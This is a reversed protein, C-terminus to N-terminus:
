KKVVINEKLVPPNYTNIFSQPKTIAQFSHNTNHQNYSFPKSIIFRNNYCDECLDYNLCQNCKYRVGEINSTLCSDCKVGFHVPKPVYTNVPYSIEQFQHYPHVFNKKDYCNQCLDYDKCNLCKFRSGVIPSMKCENCVINSHIIKPKILPKVLPELVIPEKPEVIKPELQVPVKPEEKVPAKPEEKVPVKENQIKVTSVFKVKFLTDQLSLAHLYEENTNINVWDGEKDQYIVNLDKPISGFINFARQQFEFFNKKLPLQFRKVQGNEFVVKCPIQNSSM